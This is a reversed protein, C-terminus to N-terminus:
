DSQPFAVALHGRWIVFGVIGIRRAAVLVPRLWTGRVLRRLVLGRLVMALVLLLQAVLRAVAIGHHMRFTRPQQEPDAAQGEAPAAVPIYETAPQAGSAGATGSTEPDVPQLQYYGLGTLEPASPAALPDPHSSSGAAFREYLARQTARQREARTTERM